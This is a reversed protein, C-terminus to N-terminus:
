LPPSTLAARSGADPLNRRPALSNRPCAAASRPTRQLPPVVAPSRAEAAFARGADAFFVPLPGARSPAPSPKGKAASRSRRQSSTSVAFLLSDRAGSGAQGAAEGIYCVLKM